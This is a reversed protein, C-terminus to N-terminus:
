PEDPGRGSPRWPKTDAERIRLVTATVLGNLTEIRSWEGSVSGREISTVYGGKINYYNVLHWHHLKVKIKPDALGHQDAVLIDCASAVPALAWL